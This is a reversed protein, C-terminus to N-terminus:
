LLLGLYVRRYVTSKKNVQLNDTKVNLLVPSIKSKVNEFLVNLIIIKEFVEECYVSIDVRCWKSFFEHRNGLSLAVWTGTMVLDFFLSGEVTLVTVHHQAM